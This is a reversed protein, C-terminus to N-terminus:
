AWTSWPDEEPEFMLSRPPPDLPYSAAWDIMNFSGLKEEPSFDSWSPTDCYTGRRPRSFTEKLVSLLQVRTWSTWRGMSKVKAPRLHRFMLKQGQHRLNIPKITVWLQKSGLIVELLPVHSAPSLKAMVQERVKPSAFVVPQNQHLVQGTEADLEFDEVPIEIGEDWMRENEATEEKEERNLDAVEEKEELNLNALETIQMLDIVENAEETTTVGREAQNIIPNEAPQKAIIDIVEDAEEIMTVGREAQTAILNGEPQEAGIMIVENEEETMTVTREAQDDPWVVVEEKAGVEGEEKGELEDEKVNTAEGEGKMITVKNGEKVPGLRQSEVRKVGDSSSPPHKTPSYMTALFDVKAAMSNIDFEAQVTSTVPLERIATVIADVDTSLASSSTAAPPRSRRRRRRRRRKRSPPPFNLPCGAHCSPLPTHLAPDPLLSKGLLRAVDAAADLMEQRLFQEMSKTLSRLVQTSLYSCTPMAPMPCMM